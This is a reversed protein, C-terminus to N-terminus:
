LKANLNLEVEAPAFYSNVVEDTVEVLKSSKWKPNRDKDRLIARCGEHFDHNNCFHQAMRYEIPFVDSFGLKKGDRIQKFSVKLSSPSMKALEKLQNQAFESGDKELAKLIEEYSNARFCREITPLHPALSFAPLDKPQHKKLLQDVTSDTPQSLGLLEEEVGSLSQSNVSSSLYHPTM